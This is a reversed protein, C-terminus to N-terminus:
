YGTTSRGSGRWDSVDRVKNRARNETIAVDRGYLALLAAAKMLHDGNEVLRGIDDRQHQRHARLYGNMTPFVRLCGSSLRDSLAAIGEYMVAFALGSYAAAKRSDTSDAALSSALVVYGLSLILSAGWSRPAENIPIGVAFAPTTAGVVISALSGLSSNM